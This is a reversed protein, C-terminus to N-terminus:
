LKLTGCTNTVTFTRTIQLCDSSTTIADRYTISAITGGSVTYGVIDTYTDNINVSETPSYPYRASLATIDTTTCGEIDLPSPAAIVPPEDVYGMHDIAVNSYALIPDGFCNGSTEYGLILPYDFTTESTAGKGSITAGVSIKADNPLTELISCNTTVTFKFSIDAIVENPTDPLPLTGLNWIIFGNNGPTPAVINPASYDDLPAYKTNVNTTIDLGSHTIEPPIPITLVTNEIAESGTNKIQLQYEANEGPNISSTPPSPNGNISTTAIIGEAEPVYADVAFTINFIVYSDLTSGYQFRTEIQDNDIFRNSNNDINFVAIDLGTNNTLEPYRNGLTSHTLISSNFFNNDTNNAHELDVFNGSNREEMAFYDESLGRDGEGAMIGLKFNIAGNPAAKFGSATITNEDNEGVYEYGDFVTIDRWNMEFNEYVVVMGWGGTLGTNGLTGENLAIDAVTYTGDRGARVYDTIEAYGVFINETTGGTQFYIVDSNKATIPVYGSTNPTKLLVKTKDLDKTVGDTTTVSFINPSNVGNDARGMWYLGAYIINSCEPKAANENSFILDASSSNFTPNNNPDNIIDIDVYKMASSNTGSDTYGVLTLNTNGIMAFDGKVTYITESPTEDSTRPNFPVQSYGTFSITM